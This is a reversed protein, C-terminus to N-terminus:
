LVPRRRENPVSAVVVAFGLVSLGADITNKCHQMM